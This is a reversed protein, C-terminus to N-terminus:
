QGGLVPGGPSPLIFMTLLVQGCLALGRRAESRRPEGPGCRVSNLTQLWTLGPCQCVPTFWPPDSVGQFDCSEDKQWMTVLWLCMGERGENNMM